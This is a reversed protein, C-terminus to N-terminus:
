KNKQIKLYILYVILIVILVVMIIDSYKEFASLASEWSNKALSGISVLLTNWLTSGIFTLLLFKSFHMKEIGAPLSILSRVVPICRCILVAKDQHKMFAADAKSVSEPKLFLFKGVKGRLLNFVREKGLKRGIYYLIIAGFISGATASVITLVVSMNTSAAAFGGFILIVESPIPPFINEVCILLCVAIYGYQTIFGIITDQM